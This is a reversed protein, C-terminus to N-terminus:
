KGLGSGVREDVDDFAFTGEQPVVVAVFVDVANAAQPVALDAM